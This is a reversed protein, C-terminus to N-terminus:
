PPFQVSLFVVYGTEMLCYAACNSCNCAYVSVNTNGTVAIFGDGTVM